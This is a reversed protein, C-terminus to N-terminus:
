RASLRGTETNINLSCHIRNKYDAAKQLPRIFTNLLTDIGRLEVHYALAECIEKGKEPKGIECFHDYALGYEGKEPNGTLAQIVAGDASPM